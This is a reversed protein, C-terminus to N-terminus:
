FSAAASSFPNLYPKTSIEVISELNGRTLHRGHCVFSVSSHRGMVNSHCGIVCVSVCLIRQREIVHSAHIRTSGSDLTRRAASISSCFRPATGEVAPVAGLKM